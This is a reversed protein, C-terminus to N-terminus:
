AGTSGFGGEGRETQSLAEVEEFEVEQAVEAFVMQAIRMGKKIPFSDGLRGGGDRTPVYRMLICVEARFDADITGPSNVVQVGELSLGSRPRIQGEWGVPIELALGTRVKTAWGPYLHTDEVSILDFGAASKTALKPVVADPHKKVFKIKPM